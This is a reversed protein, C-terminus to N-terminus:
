AAVVADLLGYLLVLLSHILERVNRHLAGLSCAFYRGKVFGHTVEQGYFTAFASNLSITLALM